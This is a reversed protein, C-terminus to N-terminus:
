PEKKVLLQSDVSQGEEESRLNPINEIEQVIKVEKKSPRGRKAPAIVPKATKAIRKDKKQLIKM